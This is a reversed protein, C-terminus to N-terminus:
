PSNALSFLSFDIKRSRGGFEFKVGRCLEDFRLFGTTSGTSVSAAGHEAMTYECMNLLSFLYTRHHEENYLGGQEIRFHFSNSRSLSM